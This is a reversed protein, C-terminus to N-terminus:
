NNRFTQKSNCLWKWATELTKPTENLYRICRWFLLTWHLWCVLFLVEPWRFVHSNRRISYLLVHLLPWWQPPNSLPALFYHKSPTENMEGFSPSNEATPFSLGQCFVQVSCCKPHQTGVPTHSHCLKNLLNQTIRVAQFTNSTHPQYRKDKHEKTAKAKLEM